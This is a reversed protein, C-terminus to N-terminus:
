NRAGTGIAVVSVTLVVCLDIGVTQSIMFIIGCKGHDSVSRSFHCM